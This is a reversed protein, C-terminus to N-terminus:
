YGSDNVSGEVLTFGGARLKALIPDIMPTIDYDMEVHFAVGYSPHKREDEETTRALMVSGDIKMGGYEGSFAKNAQTKRKTKSEKNWEGITEVTIKESRVFSRAIDEDAGILVLLKRVAAQSRAHWMVNTTRWQRRGQHYYRDGDTDYEVLRVLKEPLLEIACHIRRDLTPHAFDVSLTSGSVHWFAFAPNGFADTIGKVQEALDDQERWLLVRLAPETKRGHDREVKIEGDYVSFGAETLSSTLAAIAKEPDFELDFRFRIDKSPIYGTHIASELSGGSPEAVVTVKFDVGADSTTFSQSLSPTDKSERRVSEVETGDDQTTQDVSLSRFTEVSVKGKIAKKLDDPANLVTLLKTARTKSVALTWGDHKSRRWQNRGDYVAASEMARPIYSLVVEIVPSATGECALSLTLTGQEADTSLFVEPHCRHQEKIRLLDAPLTPPNASPYRLHIKM